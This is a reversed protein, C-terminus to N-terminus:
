AEKKNYIKIKFRVNITQYNDVYQPTLDDLDFVVDILKNDFEPYNNSMFRFVKFLNELDLNCNLNNPIRIQLFSTVYYNDNLYVDPIYVFLKNQNQNVKNGFGINKLLVHNNLYHIM